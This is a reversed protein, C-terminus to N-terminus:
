IKVPTFLNHSMYYCYGIVFLIPYSIIPIYYINKIGTSFFIIFSIKSFFLYLNRRLGYIALRWYNASFISTLFLVISYLYLNKYYSYIAPIIFLFSSVTLYKTINWPAIIM